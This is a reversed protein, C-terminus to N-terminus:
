NVLETGRDNDFMRWMQALRSDLHGRPQASDRITGELLRFSAPANITGGLLGSGMPQPIRYSTANTLLSQIHKLESTSLDLEKYEKELKNYEEDQKEIETKNIQYFSEM